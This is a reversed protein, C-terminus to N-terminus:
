KWDDPFPLGLQRYADEEYGANVLKAVVPKVTEGLWTLKKKWDSEVQPVSITMSSQMGFWCPIHRKTFEGEVVSMVYATRNPANLWGEFARQAHGHKYEVEFRWHTGKKKGLDFSKDYMRLMISGTRKNVYLTSGEDNKLYKTHIIKPKKGPPTKETMRKNHQDIKAYYHEALDIPKDVIVTTQLDCRTVKQGILSPLKDTVVNAAESSIIVVFEDDKRIGTKLPGCAVGKYGQFHWDHIKQYDAEFDDLWNMVEAMIEVQGDPDKGTITLWDLGTVEEMAEYYERTETRKKRPM